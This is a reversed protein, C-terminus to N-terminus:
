QKTVVGEMHAILEEIAEQIAEEGEPPMLDLVATRSAGLCDIVEERPAGETHKEVADCLFLLAAEIRRLRNEKSM